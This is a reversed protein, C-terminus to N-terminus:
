TVRTWTGPTGGTTCVWIAPTGSVVICWDGVVFTGTTPAAAATAGVYRSPTVAGTLGLFNIAPYTPTYNYNIYTLNPHNHCIAEIYDGTSFPNVYRTTNATTGVIRAVNDGGTNSSILSAGNPSTSTGVNFVKTSILSGASNFSPHGLQIGTENTQGAQGNTGYVAGGIWTCPAGMIV